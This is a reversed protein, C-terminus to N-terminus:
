VEEEADADELVAFDEDRNRRLGREELVQCKVCLNAFPLAELREPKIPDGCEECEGFTGERIRRLANEIKRLLVEESEMAIFAFDQEYTDSANEVADLPSKSTETAETSRQADQVLSEVQGMLAERKDMLIERYKAVEEKAMPM